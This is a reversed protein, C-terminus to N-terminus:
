PGRLSRVSLTKEREDDYLDVNVADYGCRAALHHAVQELKDVLPAYLTLIPVLDGLVAAARDGGDTRELCCRTSDDHAVSRGQAM